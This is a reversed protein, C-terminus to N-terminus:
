EHTMGGHFIFAEQEESILSDFSNDILINKEPIVARIGGTFPTESVLMSISFEEELEKRYEEDSPDLYFQLADGSAFSVAERIKTKLYNKYEETKKFDEMKKRVEEFLQHKLEENKESLTRKISLQEASLTKNAERKLKETEANIEERAQQRKLTQHEEFLRDLAEQHESILRQAEANASDISHRYFNELKEETTLTTVELKM